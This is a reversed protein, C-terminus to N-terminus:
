KVSLLEIDFILTANPGIDTGAGREGYALQSPVYIRWKSGTPMMPLIEQWGQIVGSVPLTIPQGRKYSSDFERGDILTGRYHVAVSDRASPKKGSGQKIIKYQLGNDSEMVGEKKRNEALFKEGAAKNIQATNRQKEAAREQYAALVQQMQQPSLKLEAAALVDSVAQIFAETDLQIAQRLMNQALQVGVAYSFKEKDTTLESEAQVTLCALTAVVLILIRKM